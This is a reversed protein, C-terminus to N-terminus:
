RRGGFGGPRGGFGGPRGRWGGPRGGWGGPRNGGPGRMENRAAKGGFANFRYIAHLMAYSHINNYQTDSFQMANVVRSYNSLNHLIDYLQLSITLPKGKLFSQSVQANWVLENTNMSNDSYGRRCQNHMDTSVSTGWPAYINM